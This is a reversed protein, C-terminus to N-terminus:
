MRKMYYQEAMRRKRSWENSNMGYIKWNALLGDMAIKMRRRDDGREVRRRLEKEKRNWGVWEKLKKYYMALRM